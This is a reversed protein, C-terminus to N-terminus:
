FSGGGVSLSISLNFTPGTTDDDGGLGFLAAPNTYEDGADGFTMRSGISFRFWDLFSYSISPSFIGSLDSLNILSFLSIGVKTEFLSGFSATLGVYHRGWNQLDQGRLDAPPEYESPQEGENDLVLGNTDPNQFLYAAPELLTSDPYGTGNFFYQGVLTLDLIEEFTELYRFGVTGSFFPFWQLEYTDLVVELDDEDTEQAATQDVSRRVFIRDSGFSVVAEGFVDLDGLPGSFTGIIRPSLARQYYGAVSLETEGVLFELKPALAVDLPNANTNIITYLYFNNLDFPIQTRLSLPGERDATPDEPDIAALNLVDAPSFFYGVGWKITHKGFRFFLTDDFSFDSFLEVVSLSLNPAQGTSPEDITSEEEEDQAALTTVLIGNADRIEQEGTEPDEEITWGEPLGDEDIAGATLAPTAGGGPADATIRFTGFARFDPTPRADFNLDSSLSPSLSTASADLLDFRNTAFTDWDWDASISGSIRGNFRVGEEVLLDDQPAVNQVETDIEEVMETNDFFGDLDPDGGFEGGGDAAPEGNSPAVPDDSPPAFPDEFDFDGFDSEAADGDSEESQGFVFLPLCVSLCVAVLLPRSM